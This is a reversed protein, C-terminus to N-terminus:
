SVKTVKSYESLCNNSCFPKQIGIEMFYQTFLWVALVPDYRFIFTFMWKYLIALPVKPLVKPAVPEATESQVLKYEFKQLKERKKRFMGKTADVQERIVPSEDKLKIL